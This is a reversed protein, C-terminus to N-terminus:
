IRPPFSLLSVSGTAALFDQQEGQQRFSLVAVTLECMKLTFM